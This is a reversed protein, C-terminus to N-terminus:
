AAPAVAAPGAGRGGVPVGLRSRLPAFVPDAAVSVYWQRGVRAQQLLILARASRGAAMELAAVRSAPLRGDALAEEGATALATFIAGHGGSAAARGVDALKVLTDDRTLEGERRLDRLMAADDGLAREAEGRYRYLAAYGPDVGEVMGLSAVAAEPRGLMYEIWGKDAKTATSTPDLQESRRM